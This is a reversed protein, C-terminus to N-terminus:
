PVVVAAEGDVLTRQEVMHKHVVFQLGVAVTDNLVFRFVHPQGVM